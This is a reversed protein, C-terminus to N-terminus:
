SATPPKNLTSAPEIRRKSLLLWASLITLPIVVLCYSVVIKTVRRSYFTKPPDQGFHFGCGHWRYGKRVGDLPGPKKQRIRVGTSKQFHFDSRIQFQPFHEWVRIRDDPLDEYKMWSLGFENSHLSYVAKPTILQVYDVESLSRVWGVLFLCALGSTLIGVKRKWGRRFECIDSSFSKM